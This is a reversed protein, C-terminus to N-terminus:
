MRVTVVGPSAVIAQVKRKSSLNQVEITDGKAGDTLAKGAMSVQLGGAEAQITVREGRRVIKRSELMNPSLAMGQAISRRVRMGIVKKYDIFYGSRLRSIERDAAELDAGTVVQGRPLPHAAVLVQKFVRVSAQVYLSWPKTGNCRVSVTTNGEARTGPLLATELSAPCTPLRLRPDLAGVSIRPPNRYGSTQESLFDRVASRISAISQYPGAAAASCVCMLLIGALCRIFKSMAIEQCGEFEFGGVSV